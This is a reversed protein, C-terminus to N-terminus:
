WRATKHGAMRNCGIRKASSLRSKTTKRTHMFDLTLCDYKHKDSSMDTFNGISYNKQQLLCAFYLSTHFSFHLRQAISWNASKPSHHQNHTKDRTPMTSCRARNMTHQASLALWHLWRPDSHCATSNHDRRNSAQRSSYRNWAISHRYTHEFITLAKSKTGIM